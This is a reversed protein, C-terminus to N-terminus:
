GLEVGLDALTCSRGTAATLLRDVSEADRLRVREALESSALARLVAGREAAPRREDRLRDRVRRLIGVVAAYEPGVVGAVRDRVGAALSPVAGSTSVAVQLEGRELVAPAIFTCLAPADVVNVLVCRREAEAAVARNVAEDGTAAIALFAGDLDGPRFRRARHEIEGARVREALAAALEPAVVAVAAGAALLGDVKRAAVTGGGVVM